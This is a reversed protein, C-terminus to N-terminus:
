LVNPAIATKLAVAAKIIPTLLHYLGNYEAFFAGYYFKKM